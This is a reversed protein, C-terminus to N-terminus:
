QIADTQIISVNESVMQDRNSTLMEWNENLEWNDYEIRYVVYQPGSGKYNGMLYLIRFVVVNLDLMKCYGKTQVFWSWFDKHNGPDTLDRRSSRWTCKYEELVMVHPDLIDAGVGDPSGVIGDLEVEDLRVGMRNAFALTLLDEWLFGVEMTVDRDAQWNGSYQWGMTHEIYKIIDTLHYKGTVAPDSRALGSGKAPFVEEHLTIEM